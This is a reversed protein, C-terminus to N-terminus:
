RPLADFSATMPEHFWSGRQGNGSEGIVGGAPAPLAPGPATTTLPTPITRAADADRDADTRIERCEADRDEQEEPGKKMCWNQFSVSCIVRM